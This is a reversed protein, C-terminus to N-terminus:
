STSGRMPVYRPWALYKMAASTALRWPHHPPELASGASDTALARLAGLSAIRLDLMGQRLGRLWWVRDIGQLLTDLQDLMAQALQPFPPGLQEFAAVDTRAIELAASELAATEAQNLKGLEAECSDLSATRISQWLDHDLLQPHIRFLHVLARASAQRRAKLEHFDLSAAATAHAAPSAVLKLGLGGLRLGLDLDEAGSELTEDFGGAARVAASSVSVHATTFRTWDPAAARTRQLSAATLSWDCERLFRALAVRPTAQQPDLTGLVAVADESLTHARLHERVLQPHALADDALFLLVRGKALAVAQNRAHALSRGRARAYRVVIPFRLGALLEGLQDDGRDILVVEFTGQAIVQQCLSELVDQVRAGRDQTCVIVSVDTHESSSFQALAKLQALDRALRTEEEAVLSRDVSVLPEVLHAVANARHLRDYLGLLVPYYVTESIAELAHRTVMVGASWFAPLVDTPGQIRARTTSNVDGGRVLIDSTVLQVEPHAELLAVQKLARSPHSCCRPDLWAFYSGRALALASKCAVGISPSPERVVTAEPVALGGSMTADIVILECLGAEQARQDAVVAAVLDREVDTIRAILSVRPNRDNTSM